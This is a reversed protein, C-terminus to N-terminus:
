YAPMNKLLFICILERWSDIQNPILENCVNASYDLLFFIKNIAQETYGHDILLSLLDYKDDAEFLDFANGALQEDTLPVDDKLIANVLSDCFFTIRASLYPEVGFNIEGEGRFELEHDNLLNKLSRHHDQKFKEQQLYNEFGFVERQIKKYDENFYDTEFKEIEHESLSDNMEYSIKDKFGELSIKFFDPDSAVYLAINDDTTELAAVEHSPVVCNLLLMAPLLKLIKM